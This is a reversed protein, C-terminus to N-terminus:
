NSSTSLTTTYLAPQFGLYLLQVKWPSSNNCSLKANGLSGSGPTPRVPQVTPSQGPARQSTGLREQGKREGQQAKGETVSTGGHGQWGPQPELHGPHTDLVPQAWCLADGARGSAGWGWRQVWARVSLLTIFPLVLCNNPTKNM